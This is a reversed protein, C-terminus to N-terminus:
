QRTLIAKQFSGVRYSDVSPSDETGRGSTSTATASMSYFEAVLNGNEMWYNNLITVKGVTFAGCFRSGIWSQELVIGNNEDIVWTGNATDKSILTYPRNDKGQSGYIIQWTYQGISDTPQIRLEMNVVQPQRATGKYWHLDGKWYGIWSQPFSDQQTWSVFPLAVVCCMILLRKMNSQNYFRIYHADGFSLSGSLSIYKNALLFDAM